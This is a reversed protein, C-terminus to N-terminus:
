KNILYVIALGNRSSALQSLQHFRRGCLGLLKSKIQNTASISFLWIGHKRSRIGARESMRYSPFCFCSFPGSAIALIVRSWFWPLLPSFWSKFLQGRVELHTHWCGQCVNRCVQRGVEDGVGVLYFYIKFGNKETEVEERNRWGLSMGEKREEKM